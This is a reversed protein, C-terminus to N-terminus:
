KHTSTCVNFAFTMKATRGRQVVPSSCCKLVAHKGVACRVTPLFTSVRCRCRLVALPVHIFFGVKLEEPLISFPTASECYPQLAVTFRAQVAQLPEAAPQLAASILAGLTGAVMFCNGDARITLQLFEGRSAVGELAPERASLFNDAKGLELQSLPPPPSINLM